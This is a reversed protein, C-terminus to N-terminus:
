DCVLKLSEPKASSYRITKGEANTLGQAVVDGRQNVIQYPEGALPIGTLEDLIQFQEDYLAKAKNFAPGSGSGSSGGALEKMSAKFSAAGSTGIEIDGGNIKIYGGSGNLM